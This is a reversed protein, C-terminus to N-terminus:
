PIPKVSYIFSDIVKHPCDIFKEEVYITVPGPDNVRINYKGNSGTVEGRSLHLNLRNPDILPVNVTVPNDAGANIFHANAIDISASRRTVFYEGQFPLERETSDCNKVKIKGQYTKKGTTTPEVTYSAIGNYVPINRGNVEAAEIRVAIGFVSKVDNFMLISAEYREGIFVIPSNSIVVASTPDFQFVCGSNAKDILSTILTKAICSLDLKLRTLNMVAISLSIDKGFKKDAWDPTNGLDDHYKIDILSKKMRDKEPDTFSSDFLDNITIDLRKKLDKTKGSKLMLEYSTTTKARQRLSIGTKDYGDGAKILESQLSDINSRLDDISKNVWLMKDIYPRVLEERHKLKGEKVYNLLEAVKSQMESDDVKFQYNLNDITNLYKATNSCGTICSFIIVSVLCSLISIIWKM